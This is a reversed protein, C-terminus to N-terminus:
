TLSASTPSASAGTRSWTTIAVLEPPADLVAGGDPEVAARVLDPPDGVRGQPPQADVRDVQEVLVAHVGVDGDLVDGASDALQHCGALDAVEAQRLRASGGDTGRMGDVGDCRHLALVRQPSAVGLRLNQGREGFQPDPPGNLRRPLPNRV